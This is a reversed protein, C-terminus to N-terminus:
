VDSENKVHDRVFPVCVCLSYRQINSVTECRWGGGSSHRPVKMASRQRIFEGLHRVCGDIQRNLAKQFLVHAIFFLRCCCCCCRWRFLYMNENHRFPWHSSTVRNEHITNLGRKKLSKGDGDDVDGDDDCFCM